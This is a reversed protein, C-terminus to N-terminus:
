GNGSRRRLLQEMLDDQPNAGKFDVSCNEKVIQFIQMWAINTQKMYAQSMAVYPSTIPTGVTPHKALFGYTSIAEECQIWRSVSMAYQNILQKNVIKECGLKKLWSWTKKYIDPALLDKGDKQKSKMYEEVPPMDEGELEATELSEPIELVQLKRGGPNGAEAKELVSKKKRGCSGVGRMTGDKSM